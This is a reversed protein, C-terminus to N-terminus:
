ATIAYLAEKRQADTKEKKSIDKGNRSGKDLTRCIFLNQM